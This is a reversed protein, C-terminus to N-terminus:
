YEIGERSCFWKIESRKKSRKEEKTWKAKNFGEGFGARREKKIKEPELKTIKKPVCLSM